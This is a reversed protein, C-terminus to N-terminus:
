HTALVLPQYFGTEAPMRWVPQTFGAALLAHDIETRLVARCPTAYHHSQWGNPTALTLFLHLTYSREGQWDWLQHVIRGPYFAPGQINPRQQSLQDYDRLSALFLGGPKLCARIQKAAHILDSQSDFHPLANDLCIVADFQRFPLAHIAAVAFEIKLRRLTAERRARTVAAASRDTATLRFGHAALGLSQTGIGCACDLVTVANAAALIPALAASQRAISADWDEFILHYNPALSDYFDPPAM